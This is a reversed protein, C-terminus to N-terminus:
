VQDVDSGDEGGDRYLQYSLSEPLDPWDSVDEGYPRGCCSPLRARRRGDEAHHAEYRYGM